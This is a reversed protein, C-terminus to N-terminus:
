KRTRTSRSPYQRKPKGVPTAMMSATGSTSASVQRHGNEGNLNAYFSTPQEVRSNMQLRSENDGNLNAYFSTQHVSNEIRQDMLMQNGNEGNSNAGFSNQHMSHTMRPNMQLQQLPFIYNCITENM